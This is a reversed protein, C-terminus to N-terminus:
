ATRLFLQGALIEFRPGARYVSAVGDESTIYIKGPALLPSSSYTAPLLREPGYVLKGTELKGSNAPAADTTSVIAALLLVPLRM